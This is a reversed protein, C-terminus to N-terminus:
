HCKHYIWAYVNIGHAHMVDITLQLRDFSGTHPANSYKTNFYGVTGDAGKCLLYVESIGNEAYMEALKELSSASSIDSGWLYTGLTIHPEPAVDHIKTMEFRASYPTGKPTRMEIYLMGSTGAKKRSLSKGAGGAFSPVPIFDGCSTLQLFENGSM